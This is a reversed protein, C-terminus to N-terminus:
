GHPNETMQISTIAICSIEPTRHLESTTYIKSIHDSLLVFILFYLKECLITSIHFLKGFCTISVFVTLVDLLWNFLWQCFRSICNEGSTFAKDLSQKTTYTPSAFSDNSCSTSVCMVSSRLCGYQIVIDTQGHYTRIIINVCKTSIAKNTMGM